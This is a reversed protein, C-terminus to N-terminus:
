LKVDEVRGFLGQPRAVIIIALLGFVVADSYLSSVYGIVLAESVGLLMGGLLAGGIRGLGGILAAVFSKLTISIGVLPDLSGYQGVYLLAGIMGIMGSLVYVLSIVRFVPIGMLGATSRDQAVMVIAQGWRHTRLFLTFLGVVTLTVTLAIIPITSFVAGGVHFTSGALSQPFIHADHGWGLTAVNRLIYAAGLAACFAAMTNDRKILPRYVTREVVAALLGGTAIVICFALWIPFTLTVLLSFAIYLGVLLTDGHAFHMLGLAQFVLGFGVAWLAYQSGTGLGNVIQQLLETM